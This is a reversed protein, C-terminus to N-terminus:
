GLMEVAQRWACDADHQDKPLRAVADCYWCTEEDYSPPANRDVLARMLKELKQMREGNTAHHAIVKKCLQGLKPGSEILMILGDATAQAGARKEFEVTATAKNPFGQAHTIVYGGTLTDADLSRRLLARCGDVDSQSLTYPQAAPDSLIREAQAKIEGTPDDNAM